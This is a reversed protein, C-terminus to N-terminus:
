SGEKMQSYAWLSFPSTVFFMGGFVVFGIIALLFADQAYEGEAILCASERINSLDCEYLSVGSYGMVIVSLAMMLGSLWGLAAIM